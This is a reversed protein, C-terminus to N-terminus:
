PQALLGVVLPGCVFYCNEVLVRDVAPDMARVNPPYPRSATRKGLPRGLSNRAIWDSGRYRNVEIRLVWGVRHQFWSLNGPGQQKGAHGKGTGAHRAHQM